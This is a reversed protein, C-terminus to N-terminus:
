RPKLLLGQGTPLTAIPVGKGKAFEDLTAKQESHVIWGYDDLVVVGGPSLKDWFFEIAAREPAAINMDLSLYCVKEIAVSALTAPVPGRVLLAKPFPAFNQRAVEYCEEYVRRNTELRAAREGASMQEEPIGRFTDFLYFSKGTANFDIYHCVALSFIGTNVGCEVFDGPLLRAHAAAWCCVHARWELHLDASRGAGSFKHGSHIGARYAKVFAPDELFGVNRGWIRMGDGDYSPQSGSGAPLACRDRERILTERERRLAECEDSKAAVARLLEERERVLAQREKLLAKLPPIQRCVAQLLQKM